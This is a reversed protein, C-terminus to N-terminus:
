SATQLIFGKQGIYDSGGPLCQQQLHSMEALLSISLEEQEVYLNVSYALLSLHFVFFVLLM